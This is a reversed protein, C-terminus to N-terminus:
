TVEAPSASSLKGPRQFHFYPHPSPFSDLCTKYTFSTLLHFPHSSLLTVPSGQKSSGSSVLAGFPSPRLTASGPPFTLKIKSHLKKLINQWERLAQSSHFQTSLCSITRCIMLRYSPLHDNMWSICIQFDNTILSSGAWVFLPCQQTLSHPTSSCYASPTRGLDTLVTTKM